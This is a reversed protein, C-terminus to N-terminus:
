RLYVQETGEELTRQGMQAKFGKEKQKPLSKKVAIGEREIM